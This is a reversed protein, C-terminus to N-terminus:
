IYTIIKKNKQVLTLLSEIVVMIVHNSAYGDILLCMVFLEIGSWTFSSM